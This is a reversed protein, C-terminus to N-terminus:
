HLRFRIPLTYRVPVAKGRQMGPKWPPMQRIGRVSEADCEEGIGKVVAVEDIQGNKAVIFNM